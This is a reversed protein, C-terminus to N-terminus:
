HPPLNVNRIPFKDKGHAFREKNIIAFQRAGTRPAMSDPDPGSARLCMGMIPLSGASSSPVPCHPLSPCCIGTPTPIGVKRM